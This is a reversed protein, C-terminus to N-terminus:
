GLIDARLCFKFRVVEDLVKAVATAQVATVSSIQIRLREFEISTGDWSNRGMWVRMSIKLATTHMEMKRILQHVAASLV